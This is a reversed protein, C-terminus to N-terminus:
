VSIMFQCSFIQNKFNFQHTHPLNPEAKNYISLFMTNLLQSTFFVKSIFIRFAIVLLVGYSKM